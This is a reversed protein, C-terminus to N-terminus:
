KDYMLLALICGRRNTVTCFVLIHHFYVLCYEVRVTDSEQLVQSLVLQTTICSTCLIQFFVKWM